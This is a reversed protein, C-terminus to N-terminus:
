VVSLLQRVDWLEYDFYDECAKDKSRKIKAKVQGEYLDPWLSKFKAHFKTYHQAAVKLSTGSVLYASPDNERATGVALEYLQAVPALSKICEVISLSGATRDNSDAISHDDVSFESRCRKCHRHYIGLDLCTLKLPQVPTVKDARQM